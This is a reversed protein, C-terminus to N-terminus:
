LERVVPPRRGGGLASIVRRATEDAGDPQARLQKSIEAARTAIDADECATKLARALVDRTRGRRAVRVGAGLREVHWALGFQDLALPVVVSPRGCKLAEGTTGAGGHIVVAAARPFLVDYPAYSVVFTDSPLPRERPALGVVVCRRGLEACAEALDVVLADSGLSFISGLGIVVPAEGAQLFDKLGQSLTPTGTGLRGASAFGCAQRSPPDGAAPGRLLEPWVGAHLLLQAEIATLSPDFATVGLTRAFNRLGHDVLGMVIVSSLGAAHPLIWSPIEVDLFQQAATSSLWAVPTASIMVTPVRREMAAWLLGFAFNSGIVADVHTSRLLARSAYFTAALYAPLVVEVLLRGGRSPRLLLPDDSILRTIDVLEGAAVFELGAGRVAREHFPNTVFCVEHGEKALARAVALTPLFDGASGFSSALFRM